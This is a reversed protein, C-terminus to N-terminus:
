GRAKRDPSKSLCLREAKQYHQFALVAQLRNTVELKRFIRHTHTKITKETIYLKAAIVKNPMGEGIMELIEIERPTLTQVRGVGEEDIGSTSDTFPVSPFFWSPRVVGLRGSLSTLTGTSMLLVCLREPLGPLRNKWDEVLLCGLVTSNPRSWLEWSLNTVVSPLWRGLSKSLNTQIM